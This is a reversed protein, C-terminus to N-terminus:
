SVQNKLWKADEKISDVSETPTLETNKLNTLASSIMFYSVAAVVAGVILAALWAPMFYALGMIVGALIALFGAYGVAGGVALSGVNTGVKSAKRSIEVQALAIEQRVLTGTEGALESFLDGLSKEEKQLGQQAM